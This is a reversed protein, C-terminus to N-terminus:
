SQSEKRNVIVEALRLVENGWLFGRRYEEIVRGEEVDDRWGTGVARMRFPDLPQEMVEIPQVQEKALLTDLRKLILRQGDQMGVLWFHEGPWVRRVMRPIHHQEMAALGSELRDRIELLALMWSRVLAHHREQEEDRRRDLERQMAEQSSQLLEFSARFQDLATKVQRSELRVENRLAALEVFIQYLDTSEAIPAEVRDFMEDSSHELLLRFQGLLQERRNPAVAM